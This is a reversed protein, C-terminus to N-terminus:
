NVCNWLLSGSQIAMAARSHSCAKGSPNPSVGVAARSTKAVVSYSPVGEAGLVRELISTFPMGRSQNSHGSQGQQQQQVDNALHWSQPDASLAASFPAASKLPPSTLAAALTLTSSQQQLAQQLTDRTKRRLDAVQADLGKGNSGSIGIGAGTAATMASADQAADAVIPRQSRDVPQCNSQAADQIPATM